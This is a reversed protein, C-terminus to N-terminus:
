DLDWDHKKNARFFVIAVVISTVLPIGLSWYKLYSDIMASIMAGISFSLITIFRMRNKSKLAQKEGKDLRGGLILSLDTGLDTTIGTLHTTRIQGHSLTAFCANQLGCIFSLTAVFFFDETFILPEGFPGFAGLDGAIMLNLLFIPIILAVWNYKPAQGHTKRVLTLQGNLWAGALFAAPLSFMEFAQFYLGKGLSIGIQTGFGTVHSVYRQCSLFGISNIFGAQFALLSWMVVYKRTILDQPTLNYM